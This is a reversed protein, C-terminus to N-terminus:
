QIRYNNIYQDRHAARNLWGQRFKAQSGSSSWKIYDQRHRQNLRRAYSKIADASNGRLPGLERLYQKSRGVGSNIAIDACVYFAPQPLSECGGPKFYKTTYIQAAAAKYKNKDKDFAYKCFMSPHGNFGSAWKFAGGRNNWCEAPILGMCTYGVRGQFSNGTDSSWNQCLGESKFVESLTEQEKTGPRGTSSSSTSSSGGRSKGKGSNNNGKTSKSSGSSTSSRNGSNSGNNKPRPRCRRQAADASFVVIAIVVLFVLILYRGAM